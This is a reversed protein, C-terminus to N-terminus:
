DLGEETGADLSGAGVHGPTGLRMIMADLARIYGPYRVLYFSLARSFNRGVVGDVFLQSVDRERVLVLQSMFFIRREEPKMERLMTALATAARPQYMWFTLLDLANLMVAKDLEERIVGQERLRRVESVLTEPDAMMRLTDREPFLCDLRAYVALVQAIKGRYDWLRM